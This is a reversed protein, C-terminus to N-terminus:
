KLVETLDHPHKSDFLLVPKSPIVKKQWTNKSISIHFHNEHLVNGSWPLHVLVTAKRVDKENLYKTSYHSLLLVRQSDTLWFASYSAGERDKM